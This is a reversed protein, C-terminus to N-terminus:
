GAFSFRLHNTMSLPVELERCMSREKGAGWVKEPNLVKGAEARKRLTGVPHARM